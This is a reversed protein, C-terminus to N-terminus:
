ATVEAIAEPITKGANVLRLAKLYTNRDTIGLENLITQLKSITKIKVQDILKGKKDYTSAYVEAITITDSM